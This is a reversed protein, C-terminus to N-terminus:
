RDVFGDADPGFRLAFAPHKYLVTGCARCRAFLSREADWLDSRLVVSEERVGYRGGSTSVHEFERAGCDPCPDRLSDWDDREIGTIAFSRDGDVVRLTREM